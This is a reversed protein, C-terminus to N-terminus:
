QKKMGGKQFDSEPDLMEKMGFRYISIIVSGIVVIENLISSYAGVIIDFVIWAPSCVTMNIIRIIGANNTWLAITGASMPILPLLNVPGDWTRWTLLVAITLFIPVWGKWRVFDWRNYMSLMMNRLIIFLQSLSGGLSGLILYQVAFAFCGLAQLLYLGRNSKVQFSFLFCLTAVVGLGQVVVFKM